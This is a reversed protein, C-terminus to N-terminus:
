RCLSGAFGRFVRALLDSTLDISAFAAAGPRLESNLKWITIGHEEYVRDGYGDLRAPLEKGAPLASSFWSIEAGRELMYDSVLAYSIPRDIFRESRNLESVYQDIPSGDFLWWTGEFTANRGGEGLVLLSMKTDTAVTADKPINREVWGAAEMDGADYAFLREYGPGMRLLSAAVAVILVAALLPRSLWRARLGPGFMAALGGLLAYDAVRLGDFVHQCGMALDTAGLLLLLASFTVLGTHRRAIAASFGLVLLAGYLGTVVRNAWAATSLGPSELVLGTFAAGALFALGASGLVVAVPQRAVLSGLAHVGRRIWPAAILLSFSLPVGVIAALALLIPAMYSQGTNSFTWAWYLPWLAFYTLYPWERTLFRFGASTHAPNAQLGGSAGVADTEGARAPLVWITFYLVMTILGTLHHTFLVATAAIMFGTRHRRLAFYLALMFLPLAAGQPTGTLTKVMLDPLAVMAAAGILPMPGRRAILYAPVAALSAIVPYVLKVTEFAGFVKSIPYLPLFSLPYHLTLAARPLWESEGDMARFIHVLVWSDMFLDDPRAINWGVRVIALIGAFAIGGVVLGSLEPWPKRIRRM